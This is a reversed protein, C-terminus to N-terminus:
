FSKRKINFLKISKDYYEIRRVEDIIKAVYSHTLKFNKYNKKTFYCEKKNLILKEIEKFINDSSLTKLKIANPATEPLGGRNSIIVASGRSAAEM